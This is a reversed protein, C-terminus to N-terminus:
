DTVPDIPTAVIRFFGSLEGSDIAYDRHIDPATSPPITELPTWPEDLSAAFWVEYQTNPFIEWSLSAIGNPMQIEMAIGLALTNDPTDYATGVFYEQYDDLGDGDTDRGELAARLLWRKNHANIEVHRENVLAYHIEDFPSLAAIEAHSALNSEINGIPIGLASVTPIFCHNTTNCYDDADIKDPPLNTFFEYFSPRYGGPANDLSYPSYSYVTKASAFGVLARFQGHFVPAATSTAQPLAYIDSDIDPDFFGPGEYHWHIVLEGSDFPLKEGFGSGNSIAISKCHAPYGAANMAAM